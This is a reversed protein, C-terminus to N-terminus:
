ALEQGGGKATVDLLDPFARVGRGRGVPKVWWGNMSSVSTRDRVVFPPLDISANECKSSVRYVLGTMKRSCYFGSVRTLIPGGASVYGGGLDADEKENQKEGQARGGNM